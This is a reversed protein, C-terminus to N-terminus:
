SQCVIELYSEPKLRVLSECFCLYPSRPESAERSALNFVEYVKVDRHKRRKQTNINITTNKCLRSSQERFSFTLCPNPINTESEPRCMVSFLADMKQWSPESHASILEYYPALLASTFGVSDSM